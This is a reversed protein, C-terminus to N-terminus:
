VIERGRYISGEKQRGTWEWEWKSRRALKRSLWSLEKRWSFGLVLLATGLPAVQDLDRINSNTGSIFTGQILKTIISSSVFSVVVLLRKWLAVPQLRPSIMALLVVNQLISLINQDFWQNMINKWSHVPKYKFPLLCLLIVHCFCSLILTTGITMNIRSHHNKACIMFAILALDTISSTVTFAAYESLNFGTKGAILKVLIEVYAVTAYAIVAVLEPEVKLADTTESESLSTPRSSTQLYKGCISAATLYWALFAGPGYYSTSASPNRTFPPWHDFPQFYNVIPFAIKQAALLIALAANAYSHPSILRNVRFLTIFYSPVSRFVSILFVLYFLIPAPIHTALRSM